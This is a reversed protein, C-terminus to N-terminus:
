REVAMTTAAIAPPAAAPAAFVIFTDVDTRTGIAAASKTALVKLEITHTGPSLDRVFMVRRTLSGSNYNDILPTAVGDISVLTQGHTPDKETVWAVYSGTFTYRATSGAVSNSSTSGGFANARPAIPWAGAYAINPDSEQAAAVTFPASAAFAGVSGAADTARVRFLYSTATGPVISRVISTTLAAPLAIPTWTTGRDTSQQLEYSTVASGGASATASWTLTVPVATATLTSHNVISPVPATASPGTVPATGNVVLTGSAASAAFTAQAGYSATLTHTGSTPSPVSFTAVGAALAQTMAAGGDVSLSVSGTPTAGTSAVSVTVAGNMPVTVAPASIATTTPARNVVMSATATSAGFDAQGAYSAALTHTGVTAGAITFNGMGNVLPQTVAAGGDV